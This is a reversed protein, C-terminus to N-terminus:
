VSFFSFFSCVIGSPITQETQVTAEINKIDLKKGIKEIGAQENVLSIQLSTFGSFAKDKVSPKYKEPMETLVKTEIGLDLSYRPDPNTLDLRKSLPIINGEDDRTIVDTDKFTYFGYVGKNHDYTRPNDRLDMMEEVPYYYKTEGDAIDYETGEILSDYYEQAGKRLVIPEGFRVRGIVKGNKAIGVWKRTLTKFNRVEGKKKGDLIANAFDVVTGDGKHGDRIIIATEQGDPNGMSERSADYIMNGAKLMEKRDLANFYNEDTSKLDSKYSVKTSRNSVTRNKSYGARDSRGESRIQRNNSRDNKAQKRGNQLSNVAVGDHKQGFRLEEIITHPENGNSKDYTENREHINKTLERDYPHVIGEDDISFKYTIGNSLTLSCLVNRHNTDWTLAESQLRLLEGKPLTIENYQSIDVNDIDISYRVNGEGAGEYANAGKNLASFEAYMKQYHKYYRKAAKSLGENKYGSADKFFSLIRQKISPKKTALAKAYGKESM